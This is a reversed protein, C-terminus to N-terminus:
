WGRRCDRLVGDLDAVAVARVNPLSAAMAELAFNNAGDNRFWMVTNGTRAAVVIDEHCDTAHPRIHPFHPFAGAFLRLWRKSNNGFVGADIDAVTVDFVGPVSDALVVTSFSAAGNNYFSSLVCYTLKATCWCCSTQGM